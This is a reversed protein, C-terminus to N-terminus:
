SNKGICAFYFGDMRNEGPFIQNGHMCDKGWAANIDIEGADRHRALFNEVQGSNEAALVSCTCYLLMGGPALLPWMADLIVAQRQVLVDIDNPRRLM